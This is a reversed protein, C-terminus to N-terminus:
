NLHNNGTLPGGNIVKRAEPTDAFNAFNAMFSRALKEATEQWKQKDEWSNRPDLIAPAVGPLLAPIELGFVPLRNLPVQDITGSM